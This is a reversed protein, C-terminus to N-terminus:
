EKSLALADRGVIQISHWTEWKDQYTAVSEFTEGVGLECFFKWSLYRTLHCVVNESAWSWIIKNGNIEYRELDKPTAPDRYFCDFADACDFYTNVEQQALKTQNPVTKIYAPEEANISNVEPIVVSELFNRIASENAHPALEYSISLYEIILGM